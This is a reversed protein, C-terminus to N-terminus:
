RPTRHMLVGGRRYADIVLSSQMEFVDGNWQPSSIFGQLEELDHFAADVLLQHAGLTIVAYRIAPHKAITEAIALVRDPVIRFWVIAEIPLGILSPEVVARIDIAGRSLLSNIIRRVRPEPIGSRSALDSSNRRGDEVLLAILEREELTVTAASPMRKSQAHGTLAAEEDQTLLQPRWQNLTRVYSLVPAVSVRTVGELAPLEVLSMQELKGPRSHVELFLKAPSALVYLFIIDPDAALEQAISALQRPECDLEIVHTAGINEMAAVKVVGSELLANGRRTITSFPVDLVAAVNRWSARGDIQLAGIIRRDLEDIEM